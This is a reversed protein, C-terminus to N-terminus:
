ATLVLGCLVGFDDGWFSFFPPKRGDNIRGFFCYKQVTTGFDAMRGRGSARMAGDVAGDGLIIILVNIYTRLLLSRGRERSDNNINTRLFGSPGGLYLGNFSLHLKNFISTFFYTCFLLPGLARSKQVPELDVELCVFFAGIDTARVKRYPLRQIWIGEYVWKRWIMLCWVTSSFFFWLLRHEGATTVSLTRGLLTHM